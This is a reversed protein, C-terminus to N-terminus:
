REKIVDRKRNAMFYLLITIFISMFVTTMVALIENGGGGQSPNVIFSMNYKRTASDVTDLGYYLLCNVLLPFIMVAFVNDFFHTVVLAMCAMLGGFVFYLVAWMDRNAVIAQMSLPDVGIMPLYCASVIFNFILPISIAIGGSVFVAIMKATFYKKRDCRILIQASYGKNWEMYLAGGYPLVALLPMILFFLENYVSAYECGLWGQLVGTEFWVNFYHPDDNTLNMYEELLRYNEVFFNNYFWNTQLVSIIIGIGISIFFTKTRLAKYIELKLIQRM